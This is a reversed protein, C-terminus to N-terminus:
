DSIPIILLSHVHFGAQSERVEGAGIHRLERSQISAQWQYGRHLEPQFPGAVGKLHYNSAQSRSLLPLPKAKGETECSGPSHLNTGPEKFVRALAPKSSKWFARKTM